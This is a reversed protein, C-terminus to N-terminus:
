QPAGTPALRFPTVAADGESFELEVWDDDAESDAILAIRTLVCRQETWLRVLNHDPKDAGGGLHRVEFQEATVRRALLDQLARLPVQLTRRKSNTNVTAKFGWHTFHDYDPACNWPEAWSTPNRVTAPLNAKLAQVLTEIALIDEDCADQQTLAGIWYPDHTGATIVPHLPRDAVVVVIVGTISSNQRLFEAVIQATDPTSWAPNVRARLSHSGGDCVVIVRAVPLTTKRLQDAKRKLANMLPNAGLGYVAEVLTGSVYGGGGKPDYALQLGLGKPRLDLAHRTSPDVAIADFLPSCADRLQDATVSPLKIRRRDRRGGHVDGEIWVSINDREVRRQAVLAWLERELRARGSEERMGDDFVAVVDGVAAWQIGPVAVVFDVVVGGGVEKPEVQLDGVFHLAHVAALEWAAAIGDRGGKNLRRIIEAPKPAPAATALWDLQRQIIRRPFIPM